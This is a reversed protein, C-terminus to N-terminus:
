LKIEKEIGCLRLALSNNTNGSLVVPVGVYISIEM